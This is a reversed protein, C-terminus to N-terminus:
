VLHFKTSGGKFTVESFHDGRLVNSSKRSGGVWTKMKGAFKLARGRQIRKFKEFIEGKQTRLQSQDGRKNEKFIM